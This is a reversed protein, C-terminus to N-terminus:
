IVEKKMFDNIIDDIDSIKYRKSDDLLGVLIDRSGSFRKSNLIQEKTFKVEIVDEVSEKKM